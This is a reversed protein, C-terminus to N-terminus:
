QIIKKEDLYVQSLCRIQFTTFKEITNQQQQKTITSFFLLFIAVSINGGRNLLVVFLYNCNNQHM